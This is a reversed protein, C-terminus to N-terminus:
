KKNIVQNHLLNCLKSLSSMDSAGLTTPDSLVCYKDLVIIFKM